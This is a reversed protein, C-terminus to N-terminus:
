SGDYEAQEFERQLWARALRWDGKVTSPSVDLVHAVEKVSMGGFFRLEVVRSQRESLEALRELAENIVLLDIDDGGPADLEPNLTVRQPVYRKAAQHKRSHDILLRRIALAAVALFHARDKWRAQKQDVLKLFAEHVLATPQLTHDPRELRFYAGALARLEDYVLPLLESAAHRDGSDLRALHQTVQQSARTAM